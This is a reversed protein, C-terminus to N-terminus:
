FRRFQKGAMKVHVGLYKKDISCSIFTFSVPCQNCFIRVSVGLSLFIQMRTLRCYEGKSTGGRSKLCQPCYQPPEATKLSAPLWSVLDESGLMTTGSPWSDCRSTGASSSHCGRDQELGQERPAGSIGWSHRLSIAGM